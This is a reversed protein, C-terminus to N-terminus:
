KAKINATDPEKRTVKKIPSAAKAETDVKPTDDKMDVGSEILKNVEGVFGKHDCREYNREAKQVLGETLLVAMLFSPTNISKGVLLPHLWFATLPKDKPCKDLAKFIADLSVWERSFYGSGSNSHVRLLIQSEANCGIQYGLKASDSLNPCSATKLIRILPAVDATTAPQTSAKRM